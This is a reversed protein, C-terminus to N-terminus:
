PLYTMGGSNVAGLGELLELLLEHACVAGRHSAFDDERRFGVGDM